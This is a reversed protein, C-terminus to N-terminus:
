DPEELEELEEPPVGLLEALHGVLLEELLVITEPRTHCRHEIPRRFVVIRAPRGSAAPVLSSLPVADGAWNDPVAPSDEVAYELPEDLRDSLSSEVAEAVGLVLDDFRDRRSPRRGAAPSGPGVAPGRPGRGHRGRRRGTPNM